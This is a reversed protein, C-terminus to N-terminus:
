QERNQGAVITKTKLSGNEPVIFRDTLFTRLPLLDAKNIYDEAGIARCSERLALSDWQSVFIIRADPFEAKIGRAAALGDMEQMEVDMLVIDPLWKSYTPLAECGDSCEVFEEALDDIFGKIMRRVDFNDEVIMVRVANM